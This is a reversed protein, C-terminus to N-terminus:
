PTGWEQEEEWASFEGPTVPHRGYGRAHQEELRRIAHRRLAAQLAARMFASRTTKLELTARDVQELLADDINMRVTKM